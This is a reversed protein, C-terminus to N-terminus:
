EEILDKDINKKNINIPMDFSFTNFYRESHITCKSM